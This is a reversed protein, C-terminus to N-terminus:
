LLYLVPYKKDKSYGPPTYVQMKRRTGVTKSDYEIMQLKGHPIGDRKQNIQDSPDPFLQKDDPGLVIQRYGRGGRRRPQTASQTAQVRIIRSGTGGSGVAQAFAFPAAVLACSLGLTFTRIMAPLMGTVGM